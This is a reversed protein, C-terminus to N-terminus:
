FVVNGAKHFFDLIIVLYKNDHFFVPVSIKSIRRDLQLVRLQEFWKFHEDAHVSKRSVVLDIRSNKNSDGGSFLFKDYENRLATKFSHDILINRSRIVARIGGTFDEASITLHIGTADELSSRKEEDSPNLYITM